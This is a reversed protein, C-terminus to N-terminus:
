LKRYSNLLMVRRCRIRASAEARHQELDEYSLAANRMRRSTQTFAQMETATDWYFDFDLHTRSRTLFWGRDIAEQVAADAAHDDREAGFADITGYPTEAAATVLHIINRGSIPRLDVLDGGLVLVRHVQRLADVM